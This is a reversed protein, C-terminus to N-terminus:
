SYIDFGGMTESRNSVFYFSSDNGQSPHFFLEDWPTNLPYGFNVANGWEGNQNRTSYFIDFGGITSHGRSAFWLTDGRVSFRVSEEDYPTNVSPGANVPKSWKRENLKSIYYIDKGGLGEKGNDSVYWVENGAPTFTFSTESGKTNIRFPITSPAKWKGKKRESVMIDGGNEYGAYIYLEEGTPTLFLPTECFDTVMKKGLTVPYTWSGSSSSSLFINEDFRSDDYKTSSKSLERRSAFYMTEGDASLLEAYDDANSNINSGLNRIDIRLTDRTM